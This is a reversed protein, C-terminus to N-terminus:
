TRGLSISQFSTFLIFLFQDSHSLLEKQDLLPWLLSQSVNKKGSEKIKNNWKTFPLFFFQFLWHWNNPWCCQRPTFPHLRWTFVSQLLKIQMCVELYPHPVGWVNGQQKEPWPWGGPTTMAPSTSCVRAGLNVCDSAAWPVSQSNKSVDRSDLTNGLPSPQPRSGRHGTNKWIYKVLTRM